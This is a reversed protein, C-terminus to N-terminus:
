RTCTKIWQLYDKSGCVIPLGIIEPVSYRHLSQVRASLRKFCARRTKIVMLSEGEGCIRGQWLFISHVRPIINVCAALKEEVLRRGIRRAEGSSPTTVLVVIESPM